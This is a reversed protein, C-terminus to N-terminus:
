VVIRNKKKNPNPRYFVAVRGIVQVREASLREVIAASLEERDDKDAGALKVKILEHTDLTIDIENIVGETLGHQGIIVVPKLHHALKKLARTQDSTLPM